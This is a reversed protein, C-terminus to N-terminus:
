CGYSVMWFALALLVCEAVGIAALVLLVRDSRLRHVLPNRLEPSDRQTLM